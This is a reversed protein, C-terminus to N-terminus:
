GWRVLFEAAEHLLPAGQWKARLTIKAGKTDLRGAAAPGAAAALLLVFLVAAAAAPPLPPLPRWPRAAM